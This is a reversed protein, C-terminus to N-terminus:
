AATDSDEHRQLMGAKSLEDFLESIDAEIQAAEVDPYKNALADRLDEFSDIQATMLEWIQAGVENLGFYVEDKTSLLVAGESVRRFVIDPNKVPLQM